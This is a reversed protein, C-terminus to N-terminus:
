LAQTQGHALKVLCIVFIDLLLQLSDTQPQRSQLTQQRTSSNMGTHGPSCSNHQWLLRHAHQTSEAITFRQGDAVESTSSSHIGTGHTALDPNEFVFSEDFTARTRLV